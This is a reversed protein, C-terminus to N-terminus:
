KINLCVHQIRASHIWNVDWIWRTGRVRLLITGLNEGNDTFRSEMRFGVKPFESDMSATLWAHLWIKLEYKPGAKFLLDSWSQMPHKPYGSDIFSKTFVHKWTSPALAQSPILVPPLEWLPHPGSQSSCHWFDTDLQCQSLQPKLANNENKIRASSRCIQLPLYILLLIPARDRPRLILTHTLHTNFRIRPSYFSRKWLIYFCNVGSLSGDSREVYFRNRIWNFAVFSTLLPSLNLYPGVATATLPRSPEARAAERRAAKTCVLVAQCHPCLPAFLSVLLEEKSPLLLSKRRSGRLQNWWCGTIQQLKLSTVAAAAPQCILRIFTPFLLLPWISLTSSYQGFVWVIKRIFKQTFCVLRERIM